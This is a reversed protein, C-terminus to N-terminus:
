KRGRPLDPRELTAEKPMAVDEPPEEKPQPKKAQGPPQGHPHEHDEKPPKSYKSQDHQPGGDVKFFPNKSLKELMAKAQQEGGLEKVLDVAEGEKFNVGNVSVSEASGDSNLYTVKPGLKKEDAM